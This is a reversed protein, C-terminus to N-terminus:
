SLLINKVLSFSGGLALGQMARLHSASVGPGGCMIRDRAVSMQVKRREEVSYGLGLSTVGLRFSQQPDSITIRSGTGGVQIWMVHWQTLANKWSYKKTYVMEKSLFVQTMEWQQSYLKEVQIRCCQNWTISLVFHPCTLKPFVSGSNGKRPSEYGKDLM